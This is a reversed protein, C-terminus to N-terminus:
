FDHKCNNCYYLKAPRAFPGAGVIQGIGHWFLEGFRKEKVNTSKCFPCHLISSPKGCHPCAEAEPSIEQGCDPCTVLVNNKRQNNSYSAIGLDHGCHKCVIAAEQTEEACYPCKKLHPQEYQEPLLASFEPQPISSLPVSTTIPVLKLASAIALGCHKCIIADERNEKCLLSM